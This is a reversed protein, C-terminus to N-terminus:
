HRFRYLNIYIGVDQEKEAYFTSYQIHVLSKPNWVEFVTEDELRHHILIQFFWKQEFILRSMENQLVMQYFRKSSDLNNLHFELQVQDSQRIDVLFTRSLNSKLDEM